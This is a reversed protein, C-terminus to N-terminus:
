KQAAPAPANLVVLGREDLVGFAAECYIAVDRGLKRPVDAYMTQLPGLWSCFADRTGMIGKGAPFNGDVVMTLDRVQGNGSTLSIQGVQNVPNLTPFLPRGDSGKAEALAAWLETSVVVVEPFRNLNSLLVKAAEVMGKNPDAASINVATNATAGAVVAAAVAIDLSDAAERAMVRLWETMLSPTGRNIAQIAIDNGSAWTNIQFSVTEIEFKGSAIDTKQATQKEVFPVTKVRPVTITLDGTSPLAARRFADVTVTSGRFLDIIESMWNPPMLGPVDSTIVDTWARAFTEADAPTITRDREAAVYEGFTRFRTGTFPHPQATRGITVAAARARVEDPNVPDDVPDPEPNVTTTREPETPLDPAARMHDVRATAYAPRPVIAVADVSARVRTVTRGDASTSNELETFEVSLGTTVGERILALADRGDATDAIRLVGRYGDATHEGTSMRGVLPGRQPHAGGTHGLYVLVDDAPQVSGPAWVETYPGAGDDVEASRGYPVLVGELTRGDTDTPTTFTAARFLV